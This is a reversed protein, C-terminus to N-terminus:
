GVQNMGSYSTSNSFVFKYHTFGKKGVEKMIQWGYMGSTRECYKFKLFMIQSHFKASMGRVHMSKFKGFARAYSQTAVKLCPTTECRKANHSFNSSKEYHHTALSFLFNAQHRHVGRSITFINQSFVFTIWREMLASLQKSLFVFVFVFFFAIVRFIQFWTHVLERAYFRLYTHPRHANTYSSIPGSAVTVTYKQSPMDYKTLKSVNQGHM